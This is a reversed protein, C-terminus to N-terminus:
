RTVKSEIGRQKSWKKRSLKRAGRKLRREKRLSM